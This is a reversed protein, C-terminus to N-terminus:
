RMERVVGRSYATALTCRSGNSVSRRERFSAVLEDHSTLELMVPQGIPLHLENATTVMQSPIADEYHVEWWWQHGTVKIKLPQSTSLAALARDTLFDAVLLAFLMLGTLAVAAIVARATRREAEPAIVPQDQQRPRFVAYLLFGVVLIFVGACVWFMFWWLHSIHTAQPGAQHLASQRGTCGACLTTIILLCAQFLRAFRWKATTSM